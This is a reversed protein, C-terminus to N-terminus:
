LEISNYRINLKNLIDKERNSCTFLIVQRNEFEENLYQIINELRADDYYAHFDSTWIFSFANAGSTKFYRVDSEETGDTIKYMYDTDPILNSLVAGNQNFVSGIANLQTFADNQKCDTEAKIAQEWNKDDKTTYLVYSNTVEVDTHWNIRMETSTEEGPNCTITYFKSSEAGFVIVPVIFMLLLLFIQFLKKM